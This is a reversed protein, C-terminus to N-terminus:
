NNQPLFFFFFVLVTSCPFKERGSFARRRKVTESSLDSDSEAPVVYPYRTRKDRSDRIKGDVREGGGGGGTAVIRAGFTCM